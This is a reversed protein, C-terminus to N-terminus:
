QNLEPVIVAAVVAVGPHVVGGNIEIGVALSETGPDREVQGKKKQGSEARPNEIGPGIEVGQSGKRHDRQDIGVGQGGIVLDKEETALGEEETELGAEDTEHDPGEIELDIEERERDKELDIGRTVEPGQDIETVAERELVSGIGLGIGETEQDRVSTVHSREGEQGLGRQGIILFPGNITKTIRKILTMRRMKKKKLVLHLVPNRLLTIILLKEMLIRNRAKKAM